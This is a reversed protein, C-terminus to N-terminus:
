SLRESAATEVERKRGMGSGIRFKFGIKNLREFREILDRSGVERNSYFKRYVKRQRKVWEGLSKWKGTENSPVDCNGREEKYQCLNM